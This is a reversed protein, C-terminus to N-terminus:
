RFRERPNSIILSHNESLFYQLGTLMNFAEELTFLKDSAQTRIRLDVFKSNTARPGKM